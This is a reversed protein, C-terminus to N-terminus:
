SGSAGGQGSRAELAGAQMWLDGVLQAGRTDVTGGERSVHAVQTERGSCLGGQGGSRATPGSSSLGVQRDGATGSRGSSQEPRKLLLESGGPGAGGKPRSTLPPTEEPVAGEALASLAPGPSPGPACVRRMEVAQPASSLPFM